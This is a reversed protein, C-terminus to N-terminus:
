GRKKQEKMQIAVNAMAAGVFTAAMGEQGKIFANLREREKDDKLTKAFDYFAKITHTYTNCLMIGAPTLNSGVQLVCANKIRASIAYIEDTGREMPVPENFHKALEEKSMEGHKPADDVAAQEEETMQPEKAGIPKLENNEKPPDPLKSWFLDEEDFYIKQGHDKFYGVPAVRGGSHEAMVKRSEEDFFRADAVLMHGGRYCILVDVGEPPLYFKVRQWKIDSM